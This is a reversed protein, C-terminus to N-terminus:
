LSAVFSEGSESQGRSTVRPGPFDWATLFSRRFRKCGGPASPKSSSPLLVASMKRVRENQLGNALTVEGRSWALPCRLDTLQMLLVQSLLARWCFSPLIKCCGMRLLCLCCSGQCHNRTILLVLLLQQMEGRVEDAM